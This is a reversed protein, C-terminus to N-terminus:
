SGIGRRGGLDARNAAARGASRSSESRTATSRGGRWSGRPGRGYLRRYEANMFEEVEVRKEKLVLAMSSPLTSAEIAAANDDHFHTEAEAVVVQRAEMLRAGIRSTFGQYFSVRAGQATVPRMEWHRDSWAMESRWPANKDRVHADAFRVMATALSAWLAETAEIDSPMGHAIVYTSNHAILVSVDNAAGIAIFLKVLAANGRQGAEGIRVTKKIPKERVKPATRLRALELDIAYRSALEQAKGFAAEAEEPTKAGEALALLKAIRDIMTM